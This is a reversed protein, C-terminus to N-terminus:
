EKGIKAKLKNVTITCVFLILFVIWAQASAYGLTKGRTRFANNVIELNMTLTSNFPGGNTLLKIETYMQLSNIMGTLAVFFINPAITPVVIHWFRRVAGAGDLESAEIIDKPVGQLAALFIFMNPGVGGWVGILVISMKASFGNGFFEIPSIGILGLAHNILNDTGTFMLKWLFTVSVAPIVAPLYIAIRYIKQGYVGQNLLIAVLLALITLLVVKIIAMIFTNGVSLWFRSDNTFINAFNKFTFELPKSTATSMVVDTFSFVLSMIMPVITFCAFGIIWPSVYLFFKATTRRQLVGDKIKETKNKMM